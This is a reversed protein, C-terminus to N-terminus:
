VIGVSDPSDTAVFSDAALAADQNGSTDLTPVGTPATFLDPALTNQSIPIGDGPAYQAISPNPTSSPLLNPANVNFSIDGFPTVNSPLIVNGNSDYLVHNQDTYVMNGNADTGYATLTGTPQTNVTQGSPQNFGSSSAGGSGPRSSSATPAGFLSKLLNAAASQSQTTAGATTGRIPTGPRTGAVPVSGTLSSGGRLLFEYAVVGIILAVALGPM